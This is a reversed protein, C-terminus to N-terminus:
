NRLMQGNMREILLILTEYFGIPENSIHGYGADRELLPLRENGDDFGPTVCLGRFGQV